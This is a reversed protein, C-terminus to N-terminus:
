GDYINERRLAEDSLNAYSTPAKEMWERWLSLKEEPTLPKRNEPTVPKNKLKENFLEREDPSLNAVMEVLSNVLQINM